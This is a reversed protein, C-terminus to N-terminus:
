KTHRQESSQSRLMTVSAGYYRKFARALAGRDSYGVRLAIDSLSMDTTALLKRAQQMVGETILQSLNLGANALALQLTRPPMGLASAVLDTSPRVSRGLAQEIVQRVRLSVETREVVDALEREVARVLVATLNADREVSKAGLVARPLVLKNTDHDLQVECRFARRYDDVRAPDRRGLHVLTPTWVPGFLKQGEEVLTAFLYDTSQRAADDFGFPVRYSLTVADGNEEVWANAIDLHLRAYRAVAGLTGAGDDAKRAAYEMIGGDGAVHFPAVALGLDPTSL